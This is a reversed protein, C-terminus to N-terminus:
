TSFVCNLGKSHYRRCAREKVHSIKDNIRAFIDALYASKQLWSTDVLVRFICFTHEILFIFKRAFNLFELLFNEWYVAVKDETHLPLQTSV